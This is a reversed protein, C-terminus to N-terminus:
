NTTLSLITQEAYCVKEEIIVPIEIELTTGEGPSSLIRFRGNLIDVRSQMNTIGIGKRKLLVM